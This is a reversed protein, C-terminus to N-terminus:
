QQSGKLMETAEALLEAALQRYEETRETDTAGIRERKALIEVVDRYDDCVTRFEPDRWFRHRILDASEPLCRVLAEISDM